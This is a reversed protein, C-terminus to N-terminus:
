NNKVLNRKKQLYLAYQEKTLVKEYRKNRTREIKQLEKEMVEKKKTKDYFKKKENYLDMNVYVLKTRQENTLGLSDAIKKAIHIALKTAANEQAQLFHIYLLFVAFLTIKKM